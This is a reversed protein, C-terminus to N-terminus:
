SALKRLHVFIIGVLIFEVVGIVTIPIGVWSLATQIYLPGIAVSLLSYIFLTVIIWHWMQQSVWELDPKTYQEEKILGSFLHIGLNFPEQIALSVYLIVGYFLGTSAIILGFPVYKQKRSLTKKNYIVKFFFILYVCLFISILGLSVWDMM